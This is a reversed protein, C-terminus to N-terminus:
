CFDNIKYRSFGQTELTASASLSLKAIAKDAEERNVWTEVLILLDPKYKSIFDRIVVTFKKSAAGQCNSVLIKLKAM